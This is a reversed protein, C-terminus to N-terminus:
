RRFNIVLAKKFFKIFIINDRTKRQYNITMFISTTPCQKKPIILRMHYHYMFRRCLKKTFQHKLILPLEQKFDMCQKILVGNLTLDEILIFQIFITGEFFEYLLTRFHRHNLLAWKIYYVYELSLTAGSSCTSPFSKELLVMYRIFRCYNHIKSIKATFKRRFEM